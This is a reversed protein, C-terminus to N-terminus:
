WLWLHAMFLKQVFFEAPRNPHPDLPDRWIIWTLIKGLIGPAKPVALRGLMLLKRPRRGAWCLYIARTLDALFPVSLFVDCFIDHCVPGKGELGMKDSAGGGGRMFEANRELSKRDAVLDRISIRVLSFRTSAFDAGVTTKLVKWERLLSLWAEKSLILRGMRPLETHVEKQCNVAWSYVM